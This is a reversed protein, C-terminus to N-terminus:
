LMKTKKNRMQELVLELESKKENVTAPETNNESEEIEQEEFKQEEIKQENVFKPPKIFKLTEDLKQEESQKTTKIFKPQEIYDLDDIRENRSAIQEEKNKEHMVVDDYTKMSNINEEYIESEHNTSIDENLIKEIASKGDIENFKETLINIKEDLEIKEQKLNSVEALNNLSDNIKEDEIKNYEIEEELLEIVKRHHLYMFLIVLGIILFVIIGYFLLDNTIIMNFLRGM